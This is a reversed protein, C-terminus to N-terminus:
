RSEEFALSELRAVTEATEAPLQGDRGEFQAGIYTDALPSLSRYLRSFLLRAEAGPWDQPLADAPLRPDRLLVSRYAQVLMLRASVADAPPLTEGQEFAMMLPSFLAIMSQYDDSFSRLNWLTSAYDALLGGDKMVDARFTLGPIAVNAAHNPRLYLDPGMRGLGARRAVEDSLDPAHHILFGEAPSQPRYLLAAAAAFETRAGSALRYYSRRGDREGVLQEAAVLRSVATRVLTESIGLRACIEVLTGMWLVGGRPVVIDGYITVIMAPARVTFQEQIRSFGESGRVALTM